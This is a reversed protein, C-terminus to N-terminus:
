NMAAEQEPAKMSLVRAIRAKAGEPDGPNIRSFDQLTQITSNQGCMMVAFEDAEFERSLERPDIWKTVGMGAGEMLIALCTIVVAISAIFQDPFMRVFQKHSWYTLAVIAIVVGILLAKELLLEQRQTAHGVEHAVIVRLHEDSGTLLTENIEIRHLFPDYLGDGGNAKKLRLTPPQCKAERAYAKILNEVDSNNM